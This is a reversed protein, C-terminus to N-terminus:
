HIFIARLEELMGEMLEFIEEFTVHMTRLGELELPSEAGVPRLAVQCWGSEVLKKESERRLLWDIFVRAEEPNPGNRVMAVTNPIILAGMDGDGQDPFVIAVPKGRELSILADDTDTLGFMLQGDQVMDRVVSNGDVFRVGRQQLQVLFERADDAGMTAYLAAAHTATTGFLPKAVGISAAPYRDDLMDLISVPYDEPPMLDTNIIFVRARGGFACWYGDPDRYTAPIDAANPSIYPQLVGREKLILTQAVEGNWFVDARPKHQEAILANVLGTTKAAEIDFRPKVRIGTEQEFEKLFPESFIQDVSTYVVVEKRARVSCALSSLLLVLVLLLASRALPRRRNGTVIRGGKM